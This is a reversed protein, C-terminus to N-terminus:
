NSGVVIPKLGGGGAWQTGSASCPTHENCTLSDCMDESEPLGVCTCM